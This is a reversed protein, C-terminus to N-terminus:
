GQLMERRERHGWPRFEPIRAGPVRVRTEEGTMSSGGVQAECRSLPAGGDGGDPM